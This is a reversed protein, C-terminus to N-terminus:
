VQTTAKALADLRAGKRRNCDGCAPRLNAPWNSGGRAIPKVHDLEEWPKRCMWCLGGFYEVRAQAQAVTCIGPANKRRAKNAKFWLRVYEANNERWRRSWARDKERNKAAWERNAKAHREPYRRRYAAANKRGLERARELNRTYYRQNRRRSAAREAERQEDTLSAYKQRHEANLRDRNAQTWERMYDARAKRFGSCKECDCGKQASAKGTTHHM